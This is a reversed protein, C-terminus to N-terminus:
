PPLPPPHAYLVICKSQWWQIGLAHLVCIALTVPHCHFWGQSLTPVSHVVATIHKQGPNHDSLTPVAQAVATVHKQGTNYDSPTPVAHVVATIHKQVTNYDSLTYLLTWQADPLPICLKVLALLPSSAALLSSVAPDVNSCSAPRCHHTEKWSGGRSDGETASVRQLLCLWCKTCSRSCPSLQQVCHQESIRNMFCYLLVGKVVM